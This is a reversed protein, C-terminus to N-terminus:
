ELKIDDMYTSRRKDKSKKERKMDNSIIKKEHAHTHIHIFHAEKTEKENM